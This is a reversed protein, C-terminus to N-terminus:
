SNQCKSCSNTSLVFKQIRHNSTDTVFMNGYSDFSLSTPELLQTSTSGGGDSCGVLCRFGTPGSGVIRYSGFEVIFLYGDADLVVATPINLTITTTSSGSGAVTIGNLQGSRFLQIRNNGADAVYLDFNIDVFIGYPRDLMNLASGYFGTGAVTTLMTANDDLWRKVVQHRYTMSCYLTNSIDVFLGYCNDDVYMAVISTNTNLSWKDVRITMDSNDVYIDGNTAVFVSSPTLLNSNITRTPNISNNFWIQIRSNTQDAVYITNNSDVFIGRPYLGVTSETAFTIANLNWTASACFKPQNYSM